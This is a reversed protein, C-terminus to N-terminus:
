QGSAESAPKASAGPGDLELALIKLWKKHEQSESVKGPSKKRDAKEEKSPRERWASPKYCLFSLENAVVSIVSTPSIICYQDEWLLSQEKCSLPLSILAPGQRIAFLMQLAAETVLLIVHKILRM